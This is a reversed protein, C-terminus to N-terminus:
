KALRITALDVQGGMLLNDSYGVVGSGHIFVSKQQALAIHGGLTALQEDISGWATDRLGDDSIVSAADIAANVAADSFYGYDRGSGSGTLNVRSDFTPPIVTSGSPWDASSSARFVDYKQAAEPSSITAYYGAGIPDLTVAFGAKDWGVRLAAFAKDADDSQRYAVRIPIPLRVKAAILLARARGPDGAPGVDFPNIDKRGPVTSALLSSTPTMAAPGGYAAVFADRNTAMALAQRTVLSSMAPRRLNPVLYEVGPAVPNTVRGALDKDALLQQRLAPPADAWTVAYRDEGKDDIIRQIPTTTAIGERVDIVDPNAERIPDSSLTWSRNRVFRGGQGSEWTGELLYPGCSFVAYRGAGQTDQDQRFPAFAPLSVAEDFDHVPVKLHFTLMSGACTVARDYLDQGTGAYPGAYAPVERGAADTVLPIDLLSAAYPLGGTLTHRAFNRSVGYRVDECTVARGDQWRADPVITFAWTRGGGSERGTDTALDAVLARPFGSGAPAQTTLTRLYTRVAFGAEPGGSMRQPDWQEVAADLLM